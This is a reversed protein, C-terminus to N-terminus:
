FNSLLLLKRSCPHHVLSIAIQHVLSIIISAILDRFGVETLGSRTKENALQILAGLLLLIDGCNSLTITKM